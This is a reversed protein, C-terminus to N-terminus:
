ITAWMCIYVKHLVDCKCDHFGLLPLFLFFGFLPISFKPVMYFQGLEWLTSLAMVIKKFKSMEFLYNIELFKPMQLLLKIVVSGTFTRHYTSYYLSILGKKEGWSSPM